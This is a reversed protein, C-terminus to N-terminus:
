DYKNTAESEESIHQHFEGISSCIQKERFNNRLEQISTSLDQEYSRLVKHIKRQFKECTDKFIHYDRSDWGVLKEYEKMEDLKGKKVKEWEPKTQQQIYAYYGIIRNM